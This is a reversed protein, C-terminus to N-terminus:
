NSHITDFTKNGFSLERIRTRYEAPPKWNRLDCLSALLIFRVKRSETGLRRDLWKVYRLVQNAEDKKATGIKLEVLTDPISGDRLGPDSYYCIDARDMNAPKFPSMPVQRCLTDNGPRMEAPLLVPNALVSAELHAESEADALRSLGLEPSFPVPNGTLRIDELSTANSKVQPAQKILHLALKVEAPTMTCFSMDSISNTPLPYPYEGLEFYLDDSLITNGKLGLRDEFRIIYPQCVPTQNAPSSLAPRTFIGLQETPKYRERSSENWVLPAQAKVGLPSNQGNLYFAGYESSGSIQGGYVIQRKLFFFIHTDNRCCAYDALAQYHRSRPGVTHAPPVHFGYVGKDLYLALTEADFLTIFLGSLPM